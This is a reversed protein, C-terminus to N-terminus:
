GYPRKLIVHMMDRKVMIIWLAIECVTTTWVGTSMHCVGFTM